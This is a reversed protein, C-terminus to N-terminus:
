FLVVGVVGLEPLARFFAATSGKRGDAQGAAAFDEAMIHFRGDRNRRAEHGSVAMAHRFKLCREPTEASANAGAASSCWCCQLVVRHSCRAEVAFVTVDAAVEVHGLESPPRLLFFFLM